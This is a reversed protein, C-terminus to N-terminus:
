PVLQNLVNGLAQNNVTLNDVTLNTFTADTSELEEAHLDVVHLEDWPSSVSGLSKEETGVVPFIGFSTTRHITEGNIECEVITSNQIITEDM